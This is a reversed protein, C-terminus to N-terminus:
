IWHSNCLINVCHPAIYCGKHFFEGSTGILLSFFILLLCQFPMKKEIRNKNIYLLFCDKLDTVIIYCWKPLSINIPIIPYLSKMMQIMKSIARLETVVRWKGSKNKTALISNWPTTLRWYKSCKATGAGATTTSTIKRIHFAMTIGM